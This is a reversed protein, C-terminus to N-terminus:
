DKLLRGQGDTFNGNIIKILDVVTGIGCLGATLLYLVGSFIKGSYIRHLGSFGFFGLTCLVGATTRSKTSIGNGNYNYNNQQYQGNPYQQNQQHTNQFPTNGRIVPSRNPNQSYVQPNDNWKPLHIPPEQYNDYQSQGYQQYQSNYDSQQQYQPMTNQQYQSNYANQQQYPYEEETSDYYTSQPIDEPKSLSIKSKKHQDEM